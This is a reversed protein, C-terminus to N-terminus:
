KATLYIGHSSVMHALRMNTKTGANGWMNDEISGRVWTLLVPGLVEEVAEIAEEGGKDGVVVVLV